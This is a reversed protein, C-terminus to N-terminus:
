AMSSSIGGVWSDPLLIPQPVEFKGRKFMGIIDPRSPDWEIIICRNSVPHSICGGTTAIEPPNMAMVFAAGEINLDAVSGDQIVGHLAAQTRSDADAVEDLFVIFNEPGHQSVTKAWDPALMKMVGTNDTRIRSVAGAHVLKTVLEKAREIGETQALLAELEDAESFPTSEKPFIPAPYGNFDAAEFRPAPLYVLHKGLVEAIPEVGGKNKGVGAQGMLIVAPAKNTKFQAQVTLALLHFQNEM